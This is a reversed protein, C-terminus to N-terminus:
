YNFHSGGRSCIECLDWRVRRPRSGDLYKQGYEVVKVYHKGRNPVRPRADKLRISLTRGPGMMQSGTGYRRSLEIERTGNVRGELDEGAIVIKDTTEGPKSKFLTFNFRQGDPLIFFGDADPLDAVVEENIKIVPM